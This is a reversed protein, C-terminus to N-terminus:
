AHSTKDKERFFVTGCCPCEQEVLNLKIKWEEIFNYTEILGEALKKAATINTNM